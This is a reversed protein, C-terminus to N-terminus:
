TNTTLKKLEYRFMKKQLLINIISFVADYKEVKTLLRIACFYLL